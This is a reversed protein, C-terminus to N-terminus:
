ETKLNNLKIIKNRITEQKVLRADVKDNHKRQEIIFENLKDFVTTSTVRPSKPNPNKCFIAM